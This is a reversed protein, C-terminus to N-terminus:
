RFSVKPTSFESWASNASKMITMEHMGLMFAIELTSMCYGSQHFSLKRDAIHLSAWSSRYDPWKPMDRRNYTEPLSLVRIEQYQDVSTISLALKKKRATLKLKQGSWWGTVMVRRTFTCASNFDVAVGQM